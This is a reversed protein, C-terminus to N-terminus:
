INSNKLIELFTSNRAFADGVISELDLAFLHAMAKPNYQYFINGQNSNTFLPIYGSSELSFAFENDIKTIIYAWIMNVDTLNKKILNVNRGIEAIATEKQGLPVNAGKFEIVIADKNTEKNFLITLDPKKNGMNRKENEKLIDQIINDITADSAAYTFTMFKDDLLWMNSLDHQNHTDNFATKGKPMFINHIFEEKKNKDKIAKELAKIINERYLIYEGLEAAAISSLNNLTCAFEETEISKSKLLNEFKGKVEIKDKEFQRKAEELIKKKNKITDENKTIYGTLYPAEKMSNKIEKENLVEIEPYRELILLSIQVFVERHIQEMNLAIDLREKQYMLTNFQSRNEDVMQDLYQSSVAIYYSDKNHLKYLGSKEEQVLRNNACYGLTTVAKNDNKFCYYLTFEYEQKTRHDIIVFNKNAFNLINTNNIEIEKEGDRLRISFSKNEKNLLFLKLAFHNKIADLLQNLNYKRESSNQYKDNIHEFKIITKNKLINSGLVTEKIDEDKFEINFLMDVQTQENVIHSTIKITNYVALWTIRGSGKCGLHMKEQSWLTLFSKKNTKTFGDGNDIVTFGSIKQNKAGLIDLATDIYHVDIVIETANAELSNSIAEYIPQLFNLNKSLTKVAGHLNVNM